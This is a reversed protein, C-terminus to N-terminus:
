VHRWVKTVRHLEQTTFSSYMREDFGKFFSFAKLRNRLAKRKILLVRKKLISDLAKFSTMDNVLPNSYYVGVTAGSKSNYLRTNTTLFKIRAILERHSRRGSTHLVQEYEAFAADLRRKYKMMKVMSPRIACGAKTIKFRYGLFSFEAHSSKGLDFSVTKARNESLKADKIINVVKELYTGSEKGTLPSSFVAVIDDVYRCYLVNGPLAQIQQDVSRLALEALYASIGVGRPIGKTLGSVKEYSSLTQKIYNKTLTSLLQDNDMKKILEQRDVSEYFSSIDTRVVKFPFPAAFAKSLTRAVRAALITRNAPRVKYVKRLNSQVKKAVFFSEPDDDTVYIAKGKPGLKKTLNIRFTNKAASVSVSELEMDVQKLRVAKLEKLEGRAIGLASKCESDSLGASNQKLSKVERVKAKVSQTFPEVSPFFRTALDHGKRNEEDFIIRFAAATFMQDLM